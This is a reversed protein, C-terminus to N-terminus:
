KIVYISTAQIIIEQKPEKIADIEEQSKKADEAYHKLMEVSTVKNEATGKIAITKGKMDLPVLFKHDKMKVMIIKDAAKIKLWWGEAACVEVVEAEVVVDMKKENGLKEALDTSKIAGDISTKEGFTMGANAPGKPPQAVLVGCFLITVFLTYIKTM